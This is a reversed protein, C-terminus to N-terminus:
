NLKEILANLYDSIRYKLSYTNIDSFFKSCYQNAEIYADSYQNQWYGLYNKYSMRNKYINLFKTISQRRYRKSRYKKSPEKGLVEKCFEAAKDTYQLLFPGIGPSAPFPEVYSDVYITNLKKIRDIDLQIENITTQREMIILNSNNTLLMNHPLTGSECAIVEAAELINIIQKLSTREPEILEFGNMKFLNDLYDLGVEYCKAKPFKSRTLFVKKPLNFESKCSIAKNNITNLMNIFDQSYCQCRKYGLEPVIIRKFKQPRNIIEVKNEIGLLKIFELFNGELTRNSGNEVVYVYKDVMRDNKDSFWLREIGEVLFHGWHDVLYGCFCITEPREINPEMFEYYGGFREPIGSEKYFNLDKDLVGGLGFCPAKTTKLAPLVYGNDIISYNSKSTKDIDKKLRRKMHERKKESIYKLEVM